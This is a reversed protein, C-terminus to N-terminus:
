PIDKRKQWKKIDEILQLTRIYVGRENLHPTGDFFYHYDIRYESFDSIIDCKLYTELEQQLNRYKSAEPTKEGECIPFGAVLLVAGRDSCYSQLSNLRFVCQQKVCSVYENQSYDEYNRKDRPCINDGYENFSNRSYPGDINQNGNGDKYLSYTKKMYSPFAVFMRPWETLEVFKWMGYHNELVTWVLVPDVIDDYKDYDNHCVIVLDGKDINGKAMNEHFANGLSGHLGLNVVQMGTKEEVLQSDVGFALNSNGVLIIKPSSISELRDIKDIIAADYSYLYQPSCIELFCYNIICIIVVSSIGLFFCRVIFKKM